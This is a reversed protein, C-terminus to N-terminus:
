VKGPWPLIVKFLSVIISREYQNQAKKDLTKIKPIGTIEKGAAKQAAKKSVVLSDHRFLMLRFLLTVVYKSKIAAKIQRLISRRDCDYIM